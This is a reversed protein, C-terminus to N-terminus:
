FEEFIYEEIENKDNGGMTKGTRIRCRGTMGILTDVDVDIQKGEGPHEGISELFQNIKWWAGETFVLNDYVRARDDVRLQLEIMENGAKSTKENADIVEFPYEGPTLIVGGGGPTPKGTTYSPM